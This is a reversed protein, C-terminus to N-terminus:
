LNPPRETEHMDVVELWAAPIEDPYCLWEENNLWLQGLKDVPVHVRLITGQEGLGNHLSWYRANSLNDHLCIVDGDTGVPVNPHEWETSSRTGDM